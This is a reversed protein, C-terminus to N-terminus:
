PISRLKRATGYQVTAKKKGKETSRLLLLITEKMGGHHYLPFPGLTPMPSFDLVDGYRTMFCVNTVHAKVTASSSSWFADLM